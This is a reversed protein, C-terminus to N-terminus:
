SRKGGRPFHAVSSPLSVTIADAVPVLVRNALGPEVDQQHILTRAGALRAALMPPVAGFGGAAFAVQPRFKQTTQYAQRIGLAVRFPDTFNRVDWYRRLKGSAVAAFPIDHAAALAAEPGDRTGVYLFSVDPQLARLAQAVALVPTASGGSGGGALLM